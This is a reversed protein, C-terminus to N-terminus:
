PSKFSSARSRKSGSAVYKRYRMKVFGARFFFHYTCSLYTPLHLFLRHSQPENTPTVVTLYFAARLERLPPTHRNRRIASTFVTAPKFKKDRIGVIAPRLLSLLSQPERTPLSYIPSHRGAPLGSQTSAWLLDIGFGTALASMPGSNLKRRTSFRYRTLSM